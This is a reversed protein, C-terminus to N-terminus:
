LFLISVKVLSSINKVAYKVRFLEVYMNKDLAVSPSARHHRPLWGDPLTGFGALGKCLNRSILFLAMWRDEEAGRFPIVKKSSVMFM